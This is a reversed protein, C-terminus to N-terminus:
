KRMKYGFTTMSIDKPNLLIPSKANITLENSNSIEIFVSKNEFSLDLLPEPKELDSGVAGLKLDTFIDLEATGRKATLLVNEIGVVKKYNLRIRTIIYVFGDPKYVILGVKEGVGSANSELTTTFSAIIKSQDHYFEPKM